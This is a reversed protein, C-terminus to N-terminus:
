FNIQISYFIFWKKRMAALQESFISLNSRVQSEDAVIGQIM